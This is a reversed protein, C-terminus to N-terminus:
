QTPVPSMSVQAAGGELQRLSKAVARVAEKADVVTKHAVKLDAKLQTVQTQFNAKLTTDDAVTATYDKAAQANVATTAAALATEANTIAIEVPATEHGEAKEEDKKTELWKLINTLKTINATMTDTRSKNITALTADLKEAVAKKREDKLTQLKEKFAAKRAERDEKSEMKNEKMTNKLEQKAMMFDQKIAAKTEGQSSEAQDGMGKAYTTQPFGLVFITLLLAAVKM